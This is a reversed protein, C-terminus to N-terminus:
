RVPMAAIRIVRALTPLPLGSLGSLSLLVPTLPYTTVAPGPTWYVLGRGARLNDAFRYVVFNADAVAHRGLFFWGAAALAVFILFAIGDAKASKLGPILM